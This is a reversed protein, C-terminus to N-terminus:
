TARVRVARSKAALCIDTADLVARYARTKTASLQFRYRGSDRSITTAVARFRRGPRRAELTVHEEAACDAVGSRIRGTLRIREGAPVSRDAARLGVSRGAPQPPDTPGPSPEGGSGCTVVAAPTRLVPVDPNTAWGVSGAAAPEGVTFRDDNAACGDDIEDAWVTYQTVGNASSYLRVGFTGRDSTGGGGSEVHKPDPSGFVPHEGQTGPSANPPPVDGGGTCDFSSETSHTGRDPAIPGGLVSSSHFRLADTPGVAEADVNAGPIVRGLQDVVTATVTASCFFRDTGEDKDVRQEAVENLTVEAPQQAYPVVRVADGSENFRDDYDNPSDNALAAVATVAQADAAVPLTCRVGNDANGNNSGIVETGCTKWVPDSGAPSTTYFTRVFTMDPTATYLADVTAIPNKRKASGDEPLSSALPAFTGFAGGSQPYALDIAPEIRMVTVDVSAQAIPENDMVLYATITAPGNLVEPPIDWSAEWTDSSTPGAAQVAPLEFDLAGQVVTFFVTAEAPSDAVWASLRYSGDSADCCGPGVDTAADSVVYGREGALAFSSPNLFAIKPEAAATWAAVPVILTMLTGVLMSLSLTRVNREAKM